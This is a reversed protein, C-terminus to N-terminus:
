NAGDEDVPALRVLAVSGFGFSRSFEILFGGCDHTFNM